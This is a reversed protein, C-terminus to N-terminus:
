PSITRCLCFCIQMSKPRDPCLFVLLSFLVNLPFVLCVSFSMVFFVYMAPPVAIDVVQVSPSLIDSDLELRSPHTGISGCAALQYGVACWKTPKIEDHGVKALGVKALILTETNQGIKRFGSSRFGSGLPRKGSLRCTQVLGNKRRLSNQGSRGGEEEEEELGEVIDLVITRLFLLSFCNILLFLFYLLFFSSDLCCSHSLCYLGHKKQHFCRQGEAIGTQPKPPSPLSFPCFCCFHVTPYFGSKNLIVVSTLEVEPWAKNSNLGIAM